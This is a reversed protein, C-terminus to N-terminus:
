STVDFCNGAVDYVDQLIRPSHFSQRCLSCVDVYLRWHWGESIWLRDRLAGDAVLGEHLMQALFVVVGDDDRQFGPMDVAVEIWQDQGKGKAERNRQAETEEEEEMAVDEKNGRGVRGDDHLPRSKKTREVEAKVGVVAESGDTFCLRASGNTAPLLDTEAVLPRFSTPLRSDPRVPPHLSLSTHLYSLESPSILTSPMNSLVYFFNSLVVDESWVRLYGPWNPHFILATLALPMKPTVVTWNM